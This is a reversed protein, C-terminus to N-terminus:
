PDLPFKRSALILTWPLPKAVRVIKFHKSVLGVFQPSSWHQLHGPTNGLDKWYAFRAVNMARWIPERPVSLIVHKRSIRSVEKLALEPDELHELIESAIVLDFSNDPFALRCASQASLCIRPSSRIEENFLNESLDIGCCWVDPRWNSILKLLNGEGCGVELFSTGQVESVLGRFKALFNQFLASAIPNRSNYKDYVNGLVTM